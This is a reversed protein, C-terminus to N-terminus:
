LEARSAQLHDDDDWRGVAWGAGDHTLHNLAANLLRLRRHSALDLGTVHRHICDLVGGHTGVLVTSGRWRRM